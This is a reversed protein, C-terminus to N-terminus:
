GGIDEIEGAGEAALEACLVQGRCNESQLEEM